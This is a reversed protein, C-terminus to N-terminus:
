VNAGNSAIVEKYWDFSKKKTRKLTGNGQNDRDVYIMGYRKSMQGTTFSVLDIIGWPTYGILNVGDYNIAKYMQEIHKRLYDIRYDDNIEGNDSVKDYAGLGNEVIFLPLQYREWLRNLVLRLGVPDVARKDFALVKGMVVIEDHEDDRALSVNNNFVKLIEM